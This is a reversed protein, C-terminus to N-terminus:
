VCGLRVNGEALPQQATPEVRRAGLLARSAEPDPFQIQIQEVIKRNIQPGNEAFQQLERLVLSKGSNNPGVFVTLRLPDLMLAHPAHPAGFKLTVTRLM